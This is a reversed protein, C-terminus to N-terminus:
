LIASNPPLAACRKLIEDFILENGWVFNLQGSFRQFERGLSARWFRDLQSDGLVVFITRTQPLIRRITEITLSADHAVTVATDKDTLRAGQLHRQDVAALIMPTAPFLRQRNKQAFTSAPGGIPVLLDPPRDPFSSLLANVAAEDSPEGARLSEVSV